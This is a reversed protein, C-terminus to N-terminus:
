CLRARKREREKSLSTESIKAREFAPLVEPDHQAIHQFDGGQRLGCRSIRSQRHGSQPLRRSPSCAALGGRFVAAM